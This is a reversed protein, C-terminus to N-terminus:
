MEFGTEKIFEEKEKATMKDYFYRITYGGILKKGDVYKWDSIESVSLTVKQGNKVERTEEADNAVIGSLTGNNEETVEIWMHEVEGSPTPYPKKVFFDKTGPKQAHFAKVFDGSAAKAKAIAANMAADDDSVHQYNSGEKSRTCGALAVLLV